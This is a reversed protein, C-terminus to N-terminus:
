WSFAVPYLPYSLNMRTFCCCLWCMLPCDRSHQRIIDGMSCSSYVQVYSDSVPHFLIAGLHILFYISLTNTINFVNDQQYQLNPPTHVWVNRNSFTVLSSSTTLYREKDNFSHISKAVREWSFNMHIIILLLSTKIWFVDSSGWGVRQWLRLWDCRRKFASLYIALSFSLLFCLCPSFILTNISVSSAIKYINEATENDEHKKFSCKEKVM